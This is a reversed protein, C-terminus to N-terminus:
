PTPPAFNASTILNNQVAVTQPTLFTLVEDDTPDDDGCTFAVTYSGPTLFAARYGYSTAGNQVDVNTVVLPDVDTAAGAEELDDPTVDGGSYVYVKPLCDETVLASDITGAIAGVNANDVIRLTPRM